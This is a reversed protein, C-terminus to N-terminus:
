RMVAPSATEFNTSHWLNGELKSLLKHVDSLGGHWGIFWGREAAIQMAVRTREPLRAIQEGVKHWDIESLFKLSPMANTFMQDLQPKVNLWSKQMNLLTEELIESFRLVPPKLSTLVKALDRTLKIDKDEMHSMRYAM